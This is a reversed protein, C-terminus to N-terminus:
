RSSGMLVTRSNSCGMSHSDTTRMPHRSLGMERREGPGGDAYIAPGFNPGAAFAPVALALSLVFVLLLLGLKRIM